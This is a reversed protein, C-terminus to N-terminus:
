TPGKEQLYHQWTEDQLMLRARRANAKAHEIGGTLVMSALLIDGVSYRIVHAVRLEETSGSQEMDNAAIWNLIGTMIVPRLTAQHAVFFPNLPLEFLMRWFLAHVAEPSVPKDGDILDDYVHSGRAIDLYFRVADDDGCLMERLLEISFPQWEPERVVSETMLILERAMETAMEPTITQGIRRAMASCIQEHM